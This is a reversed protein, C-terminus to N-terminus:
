NGLRRIAQALAVYLKGVDSSLLTVSIRHGERTSLLQRMMEEFDHIYRNVQRQFESDWEYQEAILKADRKDLLRVSRRTFVGRDGKLYDQWATDTIETSLIKAVDIAASNLSEILLAMRRAFGEDDAPMFREHAQVIRSELSATMEELRELKQELAGSSSELDDLGRGFTELYATRAQEAKARAEQALANDDILASVTEENALDAFSRRLEESADNGTVRAHEALRDIQGEGEEILASLEARVAAIRAELRQAETQPGRLAGAADSGFRTLAERQKGVQQELRGLQVILREGHNEMDRALSSQESISERTESLRESFRELNDPLTKALTEANTELINALTRNRDIMAEILPDKEGLTDFLQELNSNAANLAFALKASQDHAREGLADIRESSEGYKEDVQDILGTLAEAESKRIESVRRIAQQMDKLRERLEREREQGAHDFKEGAEALEELLKQMDGHAITLREQLSAAINRSASQVEEILAAVRVDAEAFHGVLKEGAADLDATMATTITEADSRRASLREAFDSDFTSLRAALVEFHEETESRLAAFSEQGAKQQDDVRLWGQELERMQGVANSGAEGVTSALDRGYSILVPMDRTLKDFNAQIHDVTRELNEARNEGSILASEIKGANETLNAVTRGSIKELRDISDDILQRAEDVEGRVIRVQEALEAGNARMQRSTKQYRRMESRSGRRIFLAAVLLLLLPPTAAIIHGTVRELGAFRPDPVFQSVLYSALWGVALIALIISATIPWMSSSPEDHEVEAWPPSEADEFWEDEQAAPEVPGDISDQSSRRYINEDVGMSRSNIM